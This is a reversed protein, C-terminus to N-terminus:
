SFLTRYDIAKILQLYGARLNYKADALAKESFYLLYEAELLASVPALNQEFRARFFKANESAHEVVKEKAAIDAKANCINTYATVVEQTINGRLSALLKEEETVKAERSKIKSSIGGFDFIPVSTHIEAIWLSNTRSGYDNGAGVNSTIEVSPYRESQARRVDERARSVRLQQVGIEARNTLADQIFTEVPSLGPPVFGEDSTAISKPQEMGMKISLDAALALSTNQYTQLEKEGEALKAEAGLLENKSVLAEKFKSSILKHYTKLAKVHEEAAKIDEENKLLNLFSTSVGFIIENKKTEYINKDIAVQQTAINVSPANQAFFAGEKVIPINVGLFGLIYGGAVNKSRLGEETIGRVIAYPSIPSGVMYGTSSHFDLHPYFLTRQFDLDYRASNIRAEAAHLDPNNHIAYDVCKHLTWAEEANTNSFFLLVFFLSGTAWLRQSKM